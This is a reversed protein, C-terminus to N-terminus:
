EAEEEDAAGTLSTAEEGAGFVITEGGFGTAKMMDGGSVLIVEGKIFAEKLESAKCQVTCDADAYAKGDGNGYVYVGVVHLDKAQEYIKEM